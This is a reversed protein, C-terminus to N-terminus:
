KKSKFDVQNVTVYSQNKCDKCDISAIIYKGKSQIKNDHWFVEELIRIRSEEQEHTHVRPGRVEVNKSGCKICGFKMSNFHNIIEEDTPFNSEDKTVVM